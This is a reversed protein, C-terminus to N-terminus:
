DLSKSFFEKLINLHTQKIKNWCKEAFDEENKFDKPYLPANFKLVVKQGFKFFYRGRPLIDRTGEIAASVVPIKLKYCLKIIATNPQILKGDKSRTGEPFLSLSYGKKLVGIIEKVSGIRSSQNQRDVIIPGAYIILLGVLPLRRVEKKSLSLTHTYKNFIPIDMWSQHNCIYLTTRKKDIYELGIKKIRIGLLFNNFIFTWPTMVINAFLNFRKYKPLFLFFWFFVVFFLSMLLTLIALIATFLYYLVLMFVNIDKKNNM